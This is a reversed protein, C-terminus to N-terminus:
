TPSPCPLFKPRSSPGDLPTYALELGTPCVNHFPNDLKGPLYAAVTHELQYKSCRPCTVIHFHQGAWNVNEIKSASKCIFCFETM